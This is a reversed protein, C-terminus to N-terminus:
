RWTLNDVVVQGGGISRVELQFGGSVGIDDIAFRYVPFPTSGSEYFPKSQGVSQGNVLVEVQRDGSGTFAQSLQMSVSSIGGSLIESEISGAPSQRLIISTGDIFYEGTSRRVEEYTWQVGDDGYFVGDEYGGASMNANEFTEWSSHLEFAGVNCTGGAPRRVGRQDRLPFDAGAGMAECADAPVAARAPSSQTPQRTQSFGGNDSLSVLQPNIPSSATGVQDGDVGDVLGAGGDEVSVLNYGVSTVDMASVARGIDAFEGASNQAVISRGLELDTLSDGFYFIGGGRNAASNNTITAGIVSISNEWIYIAGGDTGATNEVFTSEWVASNDGVFMIAGGRATAENDFFLSQRVDISTTGGSSLPTAIAGGDDGALNHRFISERVHAVGGIAVFIAGGSGSTALNEEFISRTAVLQGGGDVRVAGGEQAIGDRLTVGDLVLSAGSEVYFLRGGEGSIVTAADNPRGVIEISKNIAIETALKIEDVSEDIVVESGDVVNSIVQRLSGPGDDGGHAVTAGAVARIEVVVTRDSIVEFNLGSMVDVVGPNGQGDSSVQDVSVTYQGVPADDFTTNAGSSEDITRSFGDPGSITVQFTLEGFTAVEVDIAGPALGYELTVETTQDSRVTFEVPQALYTLSGEQIEQGYATYQGPELDDIVGGAPVTHEGGPGDIWLEPSAGGPLGAAEVQASGLVLDYSFSAQVNQEREVELTIENPDPDYRRDSGVSNATIVYNGPGPLGITASGRLSENFGDPGEVVLDADVESPLGEVSVQLQEDALVDCELSAQLGVTSRDRDNHELRVTTEFQSLEIPCTAVAEVVISGGAGIDGTPPDLELWDAEYDLEFNLRGTGENEIVFSAHGSEGTGIRWHMTDGDIVRIQPLRVQDEPIEGGDACGAVWLFSGILVVSCARFARM